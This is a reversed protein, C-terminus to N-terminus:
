LVEMVIHRKKYNGTCGVIISKVEALEQHLNSMNYDKYLRTYETACPSKFGKSVKLKINKM